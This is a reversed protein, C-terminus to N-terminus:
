RQSVLIDFVTASSAHDGLFFFCVRSLRISKHESHCNKQENHEANHETEQTHDSVLLTATSVISDLLVALWRLNVHGLTVAFYCARLFDSAVDQSINITSVM